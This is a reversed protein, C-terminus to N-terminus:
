RPPEFGLKSAFHNSIKSEVIFQPHKERALPQLQHENIFRVVERQAKTEALRCRMSFRGNKLGHALCRLWSLTAPVKPVNGDLVYRLVAHSFTHGHILRVFYEPRVRGASILHTIRLEQFIGFAVRNGASFWSFLDDGGCFLQQGRRDLVHATRLEKILDRYLVATSRPVCLGAGYPVASYDALNNTWLARTVTRLALMGLLPKVEPSPEAEFEPALVGAGFVGIHPYAEPIALARELYDPALVNDDDAFVLLEGKAEKIGRLRARTLGPEEERVHRGQPHWSLDWSEALPEYSANDVLLFEWMSLPLSQAKLSALTRHLYDPRPNYSCVILTVPLM